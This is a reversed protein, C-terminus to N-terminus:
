LKVTIETGKGLASEMVIEGGHVKVVHKVISLGLGTGGTEKSHSKDVRYFREFVREQEELPVGIGNDKVSIVAGGDRPSVDVKVYGGKNNYRIANDCLNFIMEHLLRKNGKVTQSGGSLELRIGNEEGKMELESMVTKAVEFVDTPEMHPTNGGDAEDLGSLSIIDDILALLRKAESNIRELFGPVDEPKAIGEKVIESCGMISTLPTKLEHSVNASFERRMKEAQEKETVDHIFMLVAYVGGGDYESSFDRAVSSVSARYIKGNREITIDRSEGLFGQEVATRFQKDRCLNLYTQKAGNEGSAELKFDFIEEAAANVSILRGDARIMVLGDKMNRTIYENERQAGYVRKIQERMEKNQLDIRVLLPSLEDYTEASLPDDLDLKNIPNIISRSMAGAVAMALTLLIIISFLIGPMAKVMMGFMSSTECAVRVVDGSGLRVAYYYTERGFTASTRTSEGAGKEMADKIEPRNMHNEMDSFTSYNDYKVTGDSGIVTIRNEDKSGARSLGSLDVSGDPASCLESIYVAENKLQEKTEGSLTGYLLGAVVVTTLVVTILTTCVIGSFIKSSLKM